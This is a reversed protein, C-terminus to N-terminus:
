KEMHYCRIEGALLQDVYRLDTELDDPYTIEQFKKALLEEESYGTIECYSRNVKLFHGNLDVLGMGIAAYDFANRFREESDRLAQENRIRDSVDKVIHSAGIQRGQEDRISSYTIEYCKRHRAIDGFEQIVTFEEGALARGWIEMAKIQEDPLHALAEIMSTGIEIERGFIKLFEAKYASNFAIYRCNLDLAAILDTTGEILNSLLFQQQRLLRETPQRQTSDRAVNSDGIVGSTADQIPSIATLQEQLTKEDFDATLFVIPIKCTKYIKQASEIGNKKRFLNIDILVCDPQFEIINHVAEEATSVIASVTYELKELNTKITQATVWEDKVILINVKDHDM